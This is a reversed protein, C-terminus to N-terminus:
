KPAKRSERKKATDKIRYKNRLVFFAFLSVIFVVILLVWVKLTLEKGEILMETVAAIIGLCICLFVSRLGKLIGEAFLLFIACLVFVSLPLIITASM